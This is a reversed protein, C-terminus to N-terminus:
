RGAKVYGFSKALLHIPDAQEPLLNALHGAILFITGYTAVPHSILWEDVVESLLKENSNAAYLEWALISTGLLGWAHKGTM